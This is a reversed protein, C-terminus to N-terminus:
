LILHSMSYLAMLCVKCNMDAQVNSVGPPITLQNRVLILMGASYKPKNETYKIVASTKDKFDLPIKYHVQMVIHDEDGDVEFGVDAPLSTPGADTGWDYIFRYWSYSPGCIDDPNLCGYVEGEEISAKNCRVLAVHGVMTSNADVNFGTIYHKRRGTARTLNNISFASCLYEDRQTPQAGPMRIAFQKETPKVEM